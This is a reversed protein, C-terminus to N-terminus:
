STSQWPVVDQLAERMLDSVKMNVEKSFKEIAERDERSVRVSLVHYRPNEKKKM